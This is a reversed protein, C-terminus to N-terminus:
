KICLEEKLKNWGCHEAITTVSIRSITKFRTSTVPSGILSYVRLMEEKIEKKM